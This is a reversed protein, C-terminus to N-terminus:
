ETRHEGQSVQELTAAMRMTAYIDLTALENALMWLSLEKPWWFQGLSFIRKMRGNYSNVM